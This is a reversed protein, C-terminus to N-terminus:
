FYVYSNHIVRRDKLVRKAAGRFGDAIHQTNPRPGDQSPDLPKKLRLRGPYDAIIDAAMSIQRAKAANLAVKSEKIWEWRAKLSEVENQDLDPCPHWSHASLLEKDLITLNLEGLITEM